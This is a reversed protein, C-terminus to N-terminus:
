ETAQAEPLTPLLEGVRITESRDLLTLNDNEGLVITETYLGNVPVRHRHIQRGAVDLVLYEPIGVRAYIGAKTNLDYDLTSDSIEAVLRVDAPGPCSATYVTAPELTVAADPMPRLIRGDEGPIAIPNETQVFLLGFVNLLWNRLLILAICHPPNVPMKLYIVGYILEYRETLKGERELQECEEITWLKVPPYTEKEPEVLTIKMSDSREQGIIGCESRGAGAVLTGFKLLFNGNSDFKQIRSHVSDAIYVNGSSDM